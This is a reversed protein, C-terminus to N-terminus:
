AAEKLALACRCGTHPDPPAMYTIGTLPDRFAEGLRATTGDLRECIPDHRGDLATIWERVWRNVDLIGRQAAARWIADQGHHASRITETRAIMTARRRLTRQYFREVRRELDAGSLGLEQQALSFNLVARTQNATLGVLQKIARAQGRVDLQGLQGARIIERIGQRTSADIERVLAASRFRAFNVAEANITAFNIDLAREQKVFRVPLDREAFPVSARAASLTLDAIPTRMDAELPVTFTDWPLRDTPDAGVELFRLVRSEDIATRLAEVAELFPAKFAPVFRDARRHLAKWEPEAAPTDVFSFRKSVRIYTM